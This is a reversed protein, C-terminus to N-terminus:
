AGKIQPALQGVQLLLQMLQEMGPISTLAKATKEVLAQAEPDGKAEELGQALTAGIQVFQRFLQLGQYKDLIEKRRSINLVRLMDEIMPNPIPAALLDHALKYETQKKVEDYPLTSGPEINVDLRVDLMEQSVQTSQKEQDEFIRLLKGPEYNRQIIEAILTMTDDIFKDLFIGQLATYTDSNRDLRVIEAKTQQGPSAAGRGVDQMFMQDDIDQKLTAALQIVSQDVKPYVWDKIRDIKGKAVFVIRGLKTISDRKSRIKGDRGLALANKEVLKTPDATRRVQNLLSSVTMNLMDNNNRSMEVANGGQWMHPLIHYPMVIFPWKSEKYVQDENKPNLITRGIRLVMRGNPFVPEKYEDTVETPFDELPEQTKTNLILGTIEEVAVEGNQVLKDLPVNDEIKVTRESYDRWCIKELDVYRQDSGHEQLSANDGAGVSDLILSAIRSFRSRKNESVKDPEAQQNKYSLDSGSVYRNGAIYKDDGATYSETFIAKKHEPWRNQAWEMKVRRIIGCNEAHEMTEATPDTWFRAPHHFRMGAKGIWRKEKPDWGNRPKSEWFPEGVMYGFTGCDLLGKPLKLRMDLEYPSKWLYDLHGAWNEAFKTTGEKEDDWAHAMIKPDNSSLKAITQFMLPYIRNVVVYQWEEKLKWDEYHKGWIYQIATDWISRFTNTVKMGADRMDDLLINLDTDNDPQTHAPGHTTSENKKVM